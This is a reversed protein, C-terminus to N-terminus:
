NCTGLTEVEDYLKCSSINHIGKKELFFMLLKELQEKREESLTKGKAMGYSPSKIFIGILVDNTPKGINIEENSLTKVNIQRNTKNKDIIAHFTIIYNKDKIHENLFANCDREMEQRSNYDSFIEYCELQTTKYVGVCQYLDGCMMRTIIQSPNICTKIQKYLCKKEYIYTTSYFIIETYEEKRSSKILAKDPVSIHFCTELIDKVLEDGLESKTLLEDVKEITYKENEIYKVKARCDIWEEGLERIAQILENDTFYWKIQENKKILAFDMAEALMCKAAFDQPNYLLMQYVKSRIAYWEYLYPIVANEFYVNNNQCILGQAILIPIQKNFEIGMHYAMRFVNDINDLDIKDSILKSFTENEGGVISNIYEIDDKKLIKRIGNAEGLYIPELLAQKKHSGTKKGRIVSGINSEPVFGKKEQIYEYSHGFPGNALDHFLAALIFLTKDKKNCKNLNAEANIKALYATGVSHEFRNINTSGTLFLSNINGLRVERLRQMEPTLICQYVIKDFDIKGYLCDYIYM